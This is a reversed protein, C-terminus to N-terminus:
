LRNRDAPSAAEGAGDPAADEHEVFTKLHSELRVLLRHLQGQEKSSLGGMLTDVRTQSGALVREVLELGEPTLRVYKVRLDSDSATRAVLGLRLLRDVVGTVSPPRIILREGLDTLRLGDLGEGCARHLVRLVGWQSVTVGFRAFFPEQIRKILGYARLIGRFASDPPATVIRTRRATM